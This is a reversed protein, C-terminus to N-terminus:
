AKRRPQNLIQRFSSAIDRESSVAPNRYTVNEQAMNEQAVREQAIREHALRRQIRYNRRSDDDYSDRSRHRSHRTPLLASLVIGGGFALAILTAPREEFQARWDVAHKVKQELESFNEGLQNRKERIEQEIQDSKEGM